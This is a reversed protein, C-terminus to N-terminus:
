SYRRPSLHALRHMFDSCVATATESWRPKPKPHRRCNGNFPGIYYWYRCNRCRRRPVHVGQHNAM